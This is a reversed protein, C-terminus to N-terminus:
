VPSGPDTTRGRVRGFIGWYLGQDLLATLEEPERIDRARRAVFERFILLDEFSDRCVGASPCPRGHLLQLAAQIKGDPVPPAPEQSGGLLKSVEGLVPAVLENAIFSAAAPVLRSAFNALGALTDFPDKILNDFSPYESPEIVVEPVPPLDRLAYRYAMIATLGDEGPLYPLAGFMKEANQVLRARRLQNFKNGDVGFPFGIEELGRFTLELSAGVVAGLRVGVGFFSMAVQGALLAYMLPPFRPLIRLALALPVGLGWHFGGSASAVLAKRGRKNGGCVCRVLGQVIGGGQGAQASMCAGLGKPIALSKTWRALALVDQADDFFGALAGVDSVIWPVHSDRFLQKRRERREAAEEATPTRYVITEDRIAEWLLRTYPKARVPEELLRGVAV